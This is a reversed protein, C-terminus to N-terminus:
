SAAGSPLSPLHTDSRASGPEEAGLLAGRQGVSPSMHLPLVVSRWLSPSPGDPLESESWRLAATVFSGLGGAVRCCPLTTNGYLSPTHLMNKLKQSTVHTQLLLLSSMDRLQEM